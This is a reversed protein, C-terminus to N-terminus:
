KAPQAHGRKPLFSPVLRFSAAESTFPLVRSFQTPLPTTETNGSSPTRESLRTTLSLSLSNLTIPSEYLPDATRSLTPPLTPKSPGVLGRTQRQDSCTSPATVESCHTVKRCPNREHLSTTLCPLSIVHAESAGPGRQPSGPTQPETAHLTQLRRDRTADSVLHLPSTLDVLTTRTFYPERHLQKYKSPFDYLEYTAM